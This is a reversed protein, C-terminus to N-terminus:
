FFTLVFFNNSNYLDLKKCHLNKALDIKEKNKEFIFKEKKLLNEKLFDPNQCIVLFSLLRNSNENKSLTAINPYTTGIKPSGESRPILLSRYHLSEAECNLFGEPSRSIADQDKTGDSYKGINGLICMQVKSSEYHYSGSPCLIVTQSYFRGAIGFNVFNLKRAFIAKNNGHPFEKDEQDSNVMEFDFDLIIEETFMGQNVLHFKLGISRRENPINSFVLRPSEFVQYRDKFVLVLYDVSAVEDRYGKIRFENENKAPGRFIFNQIRIIQLLTFFKEFPLNESFRGNQTMELAPWNVEFIRLENKIRIIMYNEFNYYNSAQRLYSPMQISGGYDFDLTEPKSTYIYWKLGPTSLLFFNQGSIPSQYFDYLNIVQISKQKLFSLDLTAERFIKSFPSDPLRDFLLIDLKIDSTIADYSSNHYFVWCIRTNKYGSLKPIIDMM